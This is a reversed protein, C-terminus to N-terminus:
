GDTEQLSNLQYMEERNLQLGIVKHRDPCKFCYPLDGNKKATYSEGEGETDMDKAIIVYLLMIDIEWKASEGNYISNTM